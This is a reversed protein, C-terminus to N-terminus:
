GTGLGQLMFRVRYPPLPARASFGRPAVTGKERCAGEKLALSLFPEGELGGKPHTSPLHPFPLPPAGVGSVLSFRSFSFFFRFSLAFSASTELGEALFLLIFLRLRRTFVATM